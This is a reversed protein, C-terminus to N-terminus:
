FVLRSQECETEPLRWQSGTAWRFADDLRRGDPTFSLQLSRYFVNQRSSVNYAGHSRGQNLDPSFSRSASVQASLNTAGPGAIFFVRDQRIGGAEWDVLWGALSLGVSSIAAVINFYALRAKNKLGNWQEPSVGRQQLEEQRATSLGAFDPVRCRHIWQNIHGVFEAVLQGAVIGAGIFASWMLVSGLIGGVGLSAVTLVVLVAVLAVMLVIRFVKKLFSFFGLGSPDTRNVPDNAVYSYLNLTQPHELGVAKMGIPDVQTFRGQQPDYHRNVAYDLKSTDSRDYSTFRRKSPTGSSEAALATGFPLTVQESWGGTLPNTIIRTGLRDPHHHEIAEGGSGNPTLTSLLRNGLYVYSKSWAPITAGGIETYEAITSDGQGFYYTRVTGEEAILRENSSGYTYTALVTQGDDSKVKVLRNAADYQFRQSATSSGPILARTQNGTKDYDFGSTTVRNSTVDYSVSALGDRPVSGSVNVSTRNGYRDYAYTQIWSPLVIPGGVVQVLRGLSDYSFSRDRTGGGYLNNTIKILQGTRKGSANAYDYSLDILTSGNRTATQRDLLGTQASYTYSENVQYTGTAVSM